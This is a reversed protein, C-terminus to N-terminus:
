KNRKSFEKQEEESIGFTEAFWTASKNVNKPKLHERLWIEEKAELHEREKAFWTELTSYTFDIDEYLCNKILKRCVSERGKAGPIIGNEKLLLLTRVHDRCIPNEILPFVCTEDARKKKEVVQLLREFGFGVDVMSIGECYPNVLNGIELGGVYIESSYGGIGQHNWVCEEDYIIESASWYKEFNSLPHIHVKYGKIDLDALLNKWMDVFNGYVDPVDLEGFSFSGLMYFSSLHHGDGVLDLDNTRVCSQLTFLRGGERKLFKSLHPQMGACVFLTSDDEPIVNASVELHPFNKYIADFIM